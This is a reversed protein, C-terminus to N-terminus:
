WITKIKAFLASGSISEVSNPMKDPDESSTLTGTKLTVTYLPAGKFILIYSSSM